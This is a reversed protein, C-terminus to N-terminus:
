GAEQLLYDISQGTVERLKELVNSPIPRGRIYALYTKTSIGLVECFEAKTLGLRGREAEINTRVIKVSEGGKFIRSEHVITM